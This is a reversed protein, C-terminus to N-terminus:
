EGRLQGRGLPDVIEVAQQEVGFAQPALLMIEIVLAPQEIMEGEALANDASQRQSSIRRIWGREGERGSNRDVAVAALDDGWLRDLDVRALEGVIGSLDGARRRGALRQEDREGIGLLLDVRNGDQDGIALM